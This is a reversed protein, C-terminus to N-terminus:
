SAPPRFCPSPEEAEALKYNLFCPSPEEAEALKYNLFCLSPHKEDEKSTFPEETKFISSAITAM